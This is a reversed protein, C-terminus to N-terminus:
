EVKALLEALNGTATDKFGVLSVAACKKYAEVIAHPVSCTNPISTSRGVAAIRTIANQLKAKLMEDTTDLVKAPYVTGNEYVSTTKFGYTFPMINMKHLLTAESPGVKEGETVVKVDNTIEIKGKVITTAIGLAQFFSTMSPELITPGKNITYSLPAVTGAKAPAPVVNELITKRVSDVSDICFVFAMNEAVLENLKELNKNGTKEIHKRVVSRILTNKAKIIHARDRLAFRIQAFQKSGVNDVTVVLVTPYNDVLNLLKEGLAIKKPAVM